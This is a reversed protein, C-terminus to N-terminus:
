WSHPGLCTVNGPLVECVTSCLTVRTPEGTRGGQWTGRTRSGAEVGGAAGDWAERSERDCALVPGSSVAACFTSRSEPTNAEYM